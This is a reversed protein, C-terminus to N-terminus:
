SARGPHRRRRSSARRVLAGRGVLREAGVHRHPVDAGDASGGEDRYRHRGPERGRVQGAGATRPRLRPSGPHRLDARAAGPQHHRDADADQPVAAGDADRDARHRDGTGARQGALLWSLGFDTSLAMIIGGVCMIPASVLLTCTMLVLMQVQTVDNTNRTILSPAGFQNVERDSFEGVRHFIASRVDRGFGMATRAGFYVATISCIVQLLTVALMYGGTTFIYSTNGTAVGNDIIDANLRPLYLAAITGVLQFLVVMTLPRQYPRLYTKSFSTVAHAGGTLHTTRASCQVYTKRSPQFTARPRSGGNACRASVLTTLAFARAPRGAAPRRDRRRDVSRRRHDAPPHRRLDGPSAGPRGAPPRGPFGERGARHLAILQTPLLDNIPHTPLAARFRANQEPAGMMRMASMLEWVNDLREALIQVAARLRDRLPLGMDVKSIEELTPSPDFVRAITATILSDKDPFVRFITGEAIGAADAIQKTTVADGHKRLLPLAADIITERRLAPAMPAARVGTPKM